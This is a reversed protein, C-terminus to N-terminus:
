GNSVADLLVDDVSWHDPRAHGTTYHCIRLQPFTRHDEKGGRGEEGMGEEGRKKDGMGEVERGERGKYTPGKIGALHDPPARDFRTCKLRLIQCRTAVIKIMSRLILQGFKACNLCYLCIPVVRKKNLALNKVITFIYVSVYITCLLFTTYFKFLRTGTILTDTTMITM